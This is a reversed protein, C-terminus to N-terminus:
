SKPVLRALAADRIADVESLGESAVAVITAAVNGSLPSTTDIHLQACVADYAASMKARLLADFQAYNSFPM